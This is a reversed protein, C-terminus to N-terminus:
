RWTHVQHLIARREEDALKGLPTYYGVRARECLLESRRIRFNKVWTLLQGIPLTDLLPPQGVHMMDAIIDLGGYTDTDRFEQRVKARFMRTQNGLALARRPQQLDKM